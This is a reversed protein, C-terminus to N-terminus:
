KLEAGLEKARKVLHELQQALEVNVKKLESEQKSIVRKADPVNKQVVAGAGVNLLVESEQELKAKVLIGPTLTVFMDDGKKAKAFDDLAQKVLSMEEIQSEIMGSQRQIQMMQQQLIQLEVYKRQLEQKKAEKDNSM